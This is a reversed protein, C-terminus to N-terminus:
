FDIEQIFYKIPIESIKEGIILYKEEYDQYETMSEQSSWNFLGQFNICELLIRNNVGTISALFMSRHKREEGYDSNPIIQIDNWSWISNDKLIKINANSIDYYLTRIVSFLSDPNEVETSYINILNTMNEGEKKQTIVIFGPKNVLSILEEWMKKRYEDNYDITKSFYEAFEFVSPRHDIIFFKKSSYPRLYFNFQVQRKDKRIFYDDICNPFIVVSALVNKTRIIM